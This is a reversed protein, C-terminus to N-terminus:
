RDTWQDIIKRSGSGSLSNSNAASSPNPPPINSHGPSGPESSDTSPRHPAKISHNLHYHNPHHHHHLSYPHHHHQQQQPEQTGPSSSSFAQSHILHHHHHPQHLLPQKPHQQDRLQQQQYHQQQYQKERQQQQQQQQQHHHHQQQQQHHHQQQQQHHQHQQNWGPKRDPGPDFSPPLHLNPPPSTHWSSSLQTPEPPPLHHGLRNHTNLSSPIPPLRNNSFRNGLGPSHTAFSGASPLPGRTSSPSRLVSGSRHRQQQQQQQQSSSSSASSQSGAPHPPYGLSLHPHGPRPSTSHSPTSFHPLNPPRPSQSSSTPPLPPQVLSSLTSTSPVSHPPPPPYYESYHPRDHGPFGRDYKMQYSLSSRGAGTMAKSSPDPEPLGRTSMRNAYVGASPSGPSSPPDAFREDVNMGEFQRGPLYDNPPPPAPSFEPPNHALRHSPPLSSSSPQQALSAHSSPRSLPRSLPRPLAQFSPQSLPQSLPRPLTTSPHYYHGAPPPLLARDVPPLKLPPKAPSPEPIEETPTPDQSDNGFWASADMNSMTVSLEVPDDNLLNKIQMSSRIVPAAEPVTPQANKAAPEDVDMAVPTTSSCIQDLGTAQRSGVLGNTKNPVRDSENPPPHASVFNEPSNDYASSSAITNNLTRADPRSPPTPDVLIPPEAPPVPRSSSSDIAHVKRKKYARPPLKPPHPTPPDAAQQQGNIKPPLSAASSAPNSDVSKLPTNESSTKNKPVSSPNYETSRTSINNLEARASSIILNKESSDVMSQPASPGSFSSTAPNRHTSSTVLNTSTTSLDTENAQNTQSSRNDFSMRRLDANLRDETHNSSLNNLSSSSSPDPAISTKPTPESQYVSEDDPEDGPPPVLDSITSKTTKPKLSSPTPPDATTPTKCPGRRARKGRLERPKGEVVPQPPLHLNRYKNERKTRYYHIVCEARNKTKVQSAIWGFQKPQATYSKEFAEQEQITWTSPEPNPDMDPQSLEYFSIPDTVLTDNEDDSISILRHNPLLAMDPVNATTKMARINPDKQDATGLQALVLDFQADTVADGIGFTSFNATRRTTRGTATLSSTIGASSSSQNGGGNTTSGVSESVPIGASIDASTTVPTLTPRKKRTLRLRLRDMAECHEIWELHYTRYVARLNQVLGDLKKQEEDQEGETTTTTGQNQDTQQPQKSTTATGDQHQSMM